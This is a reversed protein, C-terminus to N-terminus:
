NPAGKGRGWVRAEQEERGYFERLGDEGRGGVVLDGHEGLHDAERVRAHRHHAKRALVDAASLHPGKHEAAEEREEREAAEAEAARLLRTRRALVEVRGLVVLCSPPSHSSHPHLYYQPHVKVCLTAVRTTDDTERQEVTQPRARTSAITNTYVFIRKQDNARM